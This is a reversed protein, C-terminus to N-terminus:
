RNVGLALPVAQLMCFLAPFDGATLGRSSGCAAVPGEWCLAVPVSPAAKIVESGSPDGDEQLDTVWMLALPNPSLGVHGHTATM